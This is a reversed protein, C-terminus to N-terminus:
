KNQVIAVVSKAIAVVVVIVIRVGVITDTILEKVVIVATVLVIIVM